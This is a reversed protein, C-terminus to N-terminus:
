LWHEPVCGFWTRRHRAFSVHGSSFLLARKASRPSMPGIDTASVLLALQAPEPMCAALRIGSWGRKVVKRGSNLPTALPVNDVARLGGLAAQPVPFPGSTTTYLDSTQPPEASSRNDCPRRVARLVSLSRGQLIELLAPYRNIRKPLQTYRGVLPLSGRRREVADGWCQM